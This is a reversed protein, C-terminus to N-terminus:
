TIGGPNALGLLLDAHCPSDLPCWCALDLGVLRERVAEATWPARGTQIDKALRHVAYARAERGTAFRKVVRGQHKVVWMSKDAQSVRYPNGWASPRGVYVAGPPMRWGRSRRRQIRRPSM